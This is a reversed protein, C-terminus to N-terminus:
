KLKPRDTMSDKSKPKELATSDKLKPREVVAPDKPRPRDMTADSATRDKVTPQASPDSDGGSLGTATPRSKGRPLTPLTPPQLAASTPPTPVHPKSKVERPKVNPRPSKSGDLEGSFSQARNTPVPALAAKVPFAFAAALSPGCINVSTQWTAPDQHRKIHAQYTEDSGTTSDNTSTASSGYTSSASSGYTGTNSTGQTSATTSPIDYTSSCATVLPPTPSRGPRPLPAPQRGDTFSMYTHETQENLVHLDSQLVKMEEMKDPSPSNAEVYGSCLVSDKNRRVWGEKAETYGSADQKPPPLAAPKGHYTAPTANIDKAIGPYTDFIAYPSVNTFKADSQSHDGGTTDAASQQGRRVIGRPTAYESEESEDHPISRGELVTPSPTENDDVSREIVTDYAVSLPRPNQPFDDLLFEMSKSRHARVRVGEATGKLPKPSTAVVQLRPASIARPSKMHRREGAGAVSLHTHDNTESGAPLISLTEGADKLRFAGSLLSGSEEEDTEDGYRTTMSREDLMEAILLINSSAIHFSRENDYLMVVDITESDVNFIYQDIEQYGWTHVVEMSDVDLLELNSATLRCLWHGKISDEPQRGSPIIDVPILTSDGPELEQTDATSQTQPSNLQEILMEAEDCHFVFSNGNEQNEHVTMYEQKDLSVTIDAALSWMMMPTDTTCDLLTLSGAAAKLHYSEGMTLMSTGEPDSISELCARFQDEVIPSSTSTSVDHSHSKAIKLRQKPDLEAPLSARSSLADNSPFSTGIIEVKAAALISGVPSKLSETDNSTISGTSVRRKSSRRSRKPLTLAKWDTAKAQLHVMVISLMTNASKHIIQLVEVPHAQENNHSKLIFMLMDGIKDVTQQEVHILEELEWLDMEGASGSLKLGHAGLQLTCEKGSIGLRKSLLTDVATCTFTDRTNEVYTACEEEDDEDLDDLENRPSIDERSLIMQQRIAEVWKDRDKSVKCSIEMRQGFACVQFGYRKRHTEQTIEVKLLSSMSLVKTPSSFNGSTPYFELVAGLGTTTRAKRLIAYERSVRKTSLFTREAATVFVFGQMAADHTNHRVRPPDVPSQSKPKPAGSNPAGSSTTTSTSTAEADLVLVSGTPEPTGPPSQMKKGDM